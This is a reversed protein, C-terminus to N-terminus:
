GADRNVWADIAQKTQEVEAAWLRLLEEPPKDQLDRRAIIWRVLELVSLIPLVPINM